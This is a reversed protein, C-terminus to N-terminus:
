ITDQGITPFHKDSIDVSSDKLTYLLCILHTLVAKWVGLEFEHLLDVMLLESM